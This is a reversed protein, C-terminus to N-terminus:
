GWSMSVGDMPNKVPKYLSGGYNDTNGRESCALWTRACTPLATIADGPQPVVGGPTLRLIASGKDHAAIDRRVLLGNPASFTIFGGALPFASLALEPATLLLGGVATVTANVAVAPVSISVSSGVVLGTANAIVLAPHKTYRYETVFPGEYVTNDVRGGIPEWFFESTEHEFSKRITETYAMFSSSVGSSGGSSWTLDRGALIEILASFEPVVIHAMPPVDGNAQELRTVVGTLIRAATGTGLNCGRPGVSYVTKGCGRQWRLGQGRAHGYGNGPECILELTAKGFKPQTVQGMWEVAPPAARGADYSLCTVSITDTPVYPWWNDGLSQTVPYEDAEPDLLYACKITIRDKAREITQKIESREIQASRYVMGNIELDRDATCYRWALHQRSFVFLHIPKRGYRDLLM